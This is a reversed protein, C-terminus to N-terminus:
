VNIDVYEFTPGIKYAEKGPFDMACLRNAILKLDYMLGFTNDFFGVDGNFTRHLANLLKAYVFSFQNALRKEETGDPLMALKTNPFLNYVASKDFPIEPGTFSYGNEATADKILRHGYYLEEFRYYHALEGEPDIPSNESGEGQEIIIDIAKIADQKTIIPFLEEAPFFRTTFQREVKGPLIDDALEDIKCQVAHYFQGITAFTEEKKSVLSMITPFDIPHEPEEIEMFVNKVQKKSYQELGVELSGGIGMPLHGKYKPIFHEVNIAPKGGLANLVNSAISMHLMEEIVVSNIIEWIEKNTNPHFSFMATLYPPITAHELEIANQVLHHLDELKKASDIAIIINKDIKLM